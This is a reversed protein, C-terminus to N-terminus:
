LRIHLELGAEFALDNGQLFSFESAGYEKGELTETAGFKAFFLEAVKNLPRGEDLLAKVFKAQQNTIAM